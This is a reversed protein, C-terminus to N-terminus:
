APNINAEIARHKNPDRRYIHVIARSYLVIFQGLYVVFTVGLYLSSGEAPDINNEVTIQKWFGAVYRWDKNFIDLIQKDTMSDAHAFASIFDETTGAKVIEHIFTHPNIGFGYSLFAMMVFCIGPLFLWVYLPAEGRFAYLPCSLVAIIAGFLAGAATFEIVATPSVLVHIEQSVGPIQLILLAPSICAVLFGIAVGVSAWEAIFRMLRKTDFTIDQDSFWKGVVVAFVGFSVMVGAIWSYAFSNTYTAVLFRLLASMASDKDGLVNYARGSLIVISFILIVVSALIFFKKESSAVRRTSFQFPTEIEDIVVPDKIHEVAYKLAPKIASPSARIRHCFLRIMYRILKTGSEDVRTLYRNLKGRFLLEFLVLVYTTIKFGAMLPYDNWAAVLTLVFCSALVSDFVILVRRWMRTRSRPIGRWQKGQLVLFVLFCLCVALSLIKATM